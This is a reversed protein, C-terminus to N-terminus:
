QGNTAPPATAATAPAEALRVFIDDAMNHGVSVEATGVRVRVQRHGPVPPLVTMEAGPTLGQAALRQRRGGGGDIHMLRVQRGPEARSLPEEVIRVHIGQAENKRLTLHYDMVIVELPDGLPALRAVRVEVGPRLGMDLLRRRIAGEGCVQTILGTSGPPIKDLTTETLAPAAAAEPLVECLESQELLALWRSRVEEDQQMFQTLLLLRELSEASLAHELRCAEDEAQEPALLMVRRLLEVIAHHRRHVQEALERGQPTLTAYGYKEHQILERAALTKLAGSVSPMKVGLLRAIDRVRAVQQQEQLQYIAELYDEMTASLGAAALDPPM